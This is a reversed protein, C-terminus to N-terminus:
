KFFNKFFLAFKSNPLKVFFATHTREYLKRFRARSVYNLSWQLQSWFMRFTLRRAFRYYYASLFKFSKTYNYGHNTASLIYLHIFNWQYLLYTVGTLLVTYVLWCVADLQSGLVEALIVSVDCWNFFLRTYIDEIIQPFLVYGITFRYFQIIYGLVLIIVTYVEHIEM